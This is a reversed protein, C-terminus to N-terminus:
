NEFHNPRRLEHNIVHDFIGLLIGYVRDPHSLSWQLIRIFRTIIFMVLFVSYEVPSTLHKSAFYLRNRTSHYFRFANQAGSTGGVEHYVISDPNIYLSWGNKIAEYSFDVDEFAFFYREDFLGIERIAKARLCIAGGSIFEALYEGNDQVEKYMRQKAFIPILEGGATVIDDSSMQYQVSGVAAVRENEEATKIVPTLFTPEVIADNNLLFIYEFGEELANKIGKNVGAAFGLNSENFLVTVESYKEDLKKGSGDISGNDVVIIEYNPYEVDGLSDMCKATDEYNNWNLVIIAVTPWEVQNENLSNLSNTENDM